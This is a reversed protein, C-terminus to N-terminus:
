GVSLTSASARGVSKQLDMNLITFLSELFKHSACIGPGQRLLWLKLSEVLLGPVKLASLSWVRSM